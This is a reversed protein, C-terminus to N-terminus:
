GEREAQLERLVRAYAKPFMAKIVEMHRDLVRLLAGTPVGVCVQLFETQPADDTAAIVDLAPAETRSYGREYAAPADEAGDDRRMHDRVIYLMALKEADRINGGGRRLEDISEDIERLDIM